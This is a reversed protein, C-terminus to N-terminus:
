KRSVLDARIKEKHCVLVNRKDGHWNHFGNGQCDKYDKCSECQGIKTWDRNRFPQFKNEWTEYFNDTYINGQSFTRDINPCASISGDILISGINIGARCFFYTDRVHSEYKGVYGECSFKIDIKKSKRHEAIFRMLGTFQNDILYLDPNLAARGIPIITFLRWSKVNKSILLERIQELENFNKQNVCTVIDFNIRNSSSALEIANVVKEFSNSSGRLWNHSDKLGDLSITLAGMGANLLSIHRQKDYLHGNSVISWKCGRKRLEKGCFELDNRLLPEGGTFVVTFHSPINKITDIAKFFDDAPMDKYFSDKSCDSGCHLCNLNCRTSCEWFLYNLEHFKTESVRFKRFSYKKLKSLM